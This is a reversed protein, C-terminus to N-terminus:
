WPFTTRERLVAVGRNLWEDRAVFLERYCEVSAAICAGGWALNASARGAGREDTLRPALSLRVRGVTKM